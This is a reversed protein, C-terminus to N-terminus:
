HYVQHLLSPAPHITRYKSSALDQAVKQLHYAAPPGLMPADVLCAHQDEEDVEGGEEDELEKDNAGHKCSDVSEDIM